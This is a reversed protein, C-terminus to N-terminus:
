PAFGVRFPDDPDFRLEAEATVFARGRIHPVLDGNPSRELWGSFLGGTISEQRWVEGTALLGRAHRAAMVASTGTGCPSRDYDGSSCLVFNRADAGHGAAPGSLEIHDIPKGGVGTIGQANVAEQIAQAERALTAAAALTLPTRGAETLFFWNGGYAVDGRVRGLETVDVAVDLAYCSAPVNEITVEGAPNLEAAVTGAPTDFRWCGDEIRGLHALTRVVGMLGHGCMGLYTRSNFFIIGAISGNHVPPTLLAGVLADHGRPERVVARRLHDADRRLAERRELMSAGQPLPWGDIIVRTPEGETHSDIVRLTDPM